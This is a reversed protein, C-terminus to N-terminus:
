TCASFTSQSLFVCVVTEGRALYEAGAPKVWGSAIIRARFVRVFLVLVFQGFWVLGFGVKSQGWRGTRPVGM